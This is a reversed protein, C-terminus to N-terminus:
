SVAADHGSIELRCPSFTWADAHFDMQVQEVQSLM